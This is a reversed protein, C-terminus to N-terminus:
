GAYCNKKKKNRTITLLKKIIGTTLSFVLTFSATQIGAPAAIVSAFSIISVEGSTASM